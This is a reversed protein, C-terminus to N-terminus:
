WLSSLKDVGRVTDVPTSLPYRHTRNNNARTDQANGAWDRMPPPVPLLRWTTDVEPM